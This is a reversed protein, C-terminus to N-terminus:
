KLRVVAVVTSDFNRECYCVKRTSITGAGANGELTTIKKTAPDYSVVIGIHDYNTYKSNDWKWCIVDGPMLTVDNRNEVKQVKSSGYLNYLNGSTFVGKTDRFVYANSSYGRSVLREVVDNVVPTSGLNIGINALWHGTTKACWAENSAFGMQAATKGIDTKATQVLRSANASIGSSVNNAPTTVKVSFPYTKSSTTEDAATVTYVLSYNGAPVSGFKLAADIASYAISYSYSNPYVTKGMVVSNSSNKIQATISYIPQNTTKITGSLVFSKGQDISSPAKMSNFSITAKKAQVTFNQTYAKTTGGATATYRLTYSGANLKGFTLCSDVASYSINVSYANPYITKSMVVTSGSLIEGKFSSIPAGSSTVTGGLYYSNGQTLTTPCNMSGYSVTAAKPTNADIYANAKAQIVRLTAVGAIGDASIGASSQVNKTARECAPGFDGDVVLNASYLTNLTRQYACTVNYRNTSKGRKIYSVYNIHNAITQVDSKLQDIQSTTAASATITFPSRGEFPIAASGVALLGAMIASLIMKKNMM